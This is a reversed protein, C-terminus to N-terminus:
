IHILSLREATGPATTPRAVTQEIWAHHSPPRQESHLGALGLTETAPRLAPAPAPAPETELGRAAEARATPPREFYQYQTVRHTSAVGAAGEVAPALAEDYTEPEPPPPPPPPAPEPDQELGPLVLVEAGPPPTERAVPM